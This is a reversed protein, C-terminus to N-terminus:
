ELKPLSLKQSIDPTNTKEMQTLFFFEGLMFLFSQPPLLQM